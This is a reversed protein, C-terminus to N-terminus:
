RLYLLDISIPVHCRDAYPVRSEESGTRVRPCQTLVRALRSRVGRVTQDLGRLEEDDGPLLRLITVEQRLTQNEPSDALALLQYQANVM